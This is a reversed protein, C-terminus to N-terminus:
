YKRFFLDLQRDVARRIINKVSAGKASAMERIKRMQESTFLAREAKAEEREAYEDLARRVIESKLLGTKEHQEDIWEMQSPTITFTTKELKPM